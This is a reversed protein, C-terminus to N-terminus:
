HCKQAEVHIISTDNTYLTQELVDMILKLLNNIDKGCPFPCANAALYPVTQGGVLDMRPRPVVFKVKLLIAESDTFYPFSTVDIAVMELRVAKDFLKKEGAYCDFIVPRSHGKWAM